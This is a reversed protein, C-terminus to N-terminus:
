RAMPRIELVEVGGEDVMWRVEHGALQVGHPRGHEGRRYAPRPDLALTERVLAEFGAPAAALAPRVAEAFRVPLREPVAAFAAPAQADPPADAYPLYPKIDYVPTGDLLDHDALRLGCPAPPLLLGQLRVVSLGLGNPRFPSRSAFVGLRRNGGLRPPRVTPRWGRAAVAHFGFLLWVHSCAELGRLAAPEDYPPRLQLVATAAPVLGPQRPTGFRQEFGSRIVGIAELTASM